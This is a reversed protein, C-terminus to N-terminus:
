VSRAPVIPRACCRRHAQAFSIPAWSLVRVKVATLGSAGSALADVLEAVQAHLPKNLVGQASTLNARQAKRLGAAPLRPWTSFATNSGLYATCRRSSPTDALRWIDVRHPSDSGMLISRMYSQACPM